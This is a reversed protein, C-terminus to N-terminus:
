HNATLSRIDYIDVEKVSGDVGKVLFTDLGKVKIVEGMWDGESSLVLVTKNLMKENILMRESLSKMTINQLQSPYIELSDDLIM